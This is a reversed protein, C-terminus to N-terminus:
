RSRPSGRARGCRVAIVRRTWCRSCGAKSTRAGRWASPLSGRAAPAARATRWRWCTRPTPRRRRARRSCATTAPTSARRACGRRPGGPSRISGTSRARSRQSWNRSTTAGSSTRWSTCCRPAGGSSRGPRRVRRCCCSRSSGAGRSRRAWSRASRWDSAARPGACPRRSAMTGRGHRPSSRSRRACSRGCGWTGSCAGSRSPSPARSGPWASCPPSRHSHAVCRRRRPANPQV